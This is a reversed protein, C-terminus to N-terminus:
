PVILREMSSCNGIHVCVIKRSQTDICGFIWVANHDDVTHKVEQVQHKGDIGTDGSEFISTLLQTNGNLHGTM